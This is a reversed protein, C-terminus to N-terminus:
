MTQQSMANTKLYYAKITFFCTLATEYNNLIRFHRNDVVSSTFQYLYSNTSTKSLRASILTYESGPTPILFTEFKGTEITASETVHTVEVIKLSDNLETLASASAVDKKNTSASCEAVTSLVNSTAVRSTDSPHKHDSRAVTTASGLSAGGDMVPVKNSYTVHTGHSTDAKNNLAEKVAKNQVPNTSTASLASDVKVHGLVSATAATSVHSILTSVAKSIKGFAVFLKEGSTLNSLSTAEDYTPTQNNTSVNPVNGLGVDDASVGHPNKKNALHNEIADGKAKLIRDIEETNENMHNVDFAESEEPLNFEFNASKQM